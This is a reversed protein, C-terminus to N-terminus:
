VADSLVVIGRKRDLADEKQRFERGQRSLERLKRIYVNAAVGSEGEGRIALAKARRNQCATYLSQAQPQKVETLEWHVTWKDSATFNSPREIYYGNMKNKIVLTMALLDREPAGQGQEASTDQSESAPSGDSTASTEQDVNSTTSIEQPSGEEKDSSEDTKDKAPTTPQSGAKLDSPAHTTPKIREESPLNLIRRQYAEIEEENKTQIAHIEDDTVPEAFIYMFPTQADRTEFHFRLSRKPFKETAKDLIKNWLALSLQFETDGLTTDSQGHLTQDMEPLSVYQFGFIREINHFAVFIGDMRGIRVQLSYKLFAARIMDFFEREYSEYGGFRHRIEYGLGHEFNRVDMRISVVARTKLDFMGTGPLRPDYADLQSRMVFDGMTSYHYAEPVAQEEEASIKNTSTRRYREFDEKPLTLLKELSKGLNMLINASEFEKDADIAYVGDQYRLFMAAPARLLRTFTRLKDPFGQSMNRADIPRWSSLLYHFHSLVSTMSSSSGVYKKKEKAAIRRLTEDRSSTIYEKLADFDFETVPMISGLYPDFNFVRSRPDRLHYVGPNFLVRDLGFSLRPVSPTQIKLPTISLEESHLVGSHRGLASRAVASLTEITERSGPTTGRCDLLSVVSQLSSQIRATSDEEGQFPAGPDESKAKELASLEDRKLKATVTRRKQIPPGTDPATSGRRRKTTETPVKDEEDREDRLLQIITEQLQLSPSASASTSHVRRVVSDTVDQLGKRKKKKKKKTPPSDGKDSTAPASSAGKAPTNGDSAQDDGSKARSLPSSYFQRLRPRAGLGQALCSLCVHERLPDKLSRLSTRFM